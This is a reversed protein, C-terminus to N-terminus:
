ARTLKKLTLGPQLSACLLAYLTTPSLSMCVAARVKIGLHRTEIAAADGGIRQFPAAAAFAGAEDLGGDGRAMVAM